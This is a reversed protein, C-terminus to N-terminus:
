DPFDALTTPEVVQLANRESRFRQSTAYALKRMRMIAGLPRHAQVGHWPSFGMGDDVAASRAQSWGTQPAATLRAVAIYPSREESWEATPDDIPMDYLNDCLQVRLEWTGGHERFHANVADRLANESHKLDVPQGTLATLEPSVPVFQFKAIHVGYRM